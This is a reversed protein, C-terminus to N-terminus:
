VGDFIKDNKEYGMLFLPFIEYGMYFDEAGKQAM